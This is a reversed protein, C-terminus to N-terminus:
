CQAATHDSMSVLLCYALFALRLTRRVKQFIFAKWEWLSGVFDGSQSETPYKM